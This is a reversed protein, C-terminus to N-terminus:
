FLIHIVFFCINAKIEHEPIEDINEHIREIEENSINNKNVPLEYKTKCHPCWDTYFFMLEAEHTNGDEGHRKERNATYTPNLTPKVYQYYVFVVFDFLM